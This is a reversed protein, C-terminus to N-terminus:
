RVEQLRTRRKHGDRSRVIARRDWSVDSRWGCTCIACFGEVRLGVVVQHNMRNETM